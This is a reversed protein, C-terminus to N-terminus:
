SSGDARKVLEHLRDAMGSAVWEDNVHGDVEVVEIGKGGEELGKKLERVLAGDAEEDWFVGGDVDIGSWGKKPVMVMCLDPESPSTRLLTISPNHVHLTRPPSSSTYHSPVTSRPGFNAMDLAGLSIVQPISSKSAATLRTPGASLIGGCQEDALETTTLDLVADFWQVSSANDDTMDRHNMHPHNQVKEEILREMTRGGSGTCHFVVPEYLRQGTEDDKFSRLRDCAATVGPTTLGFMTVAVLHKPSDKMDPSDDQPSASNTSFYAHAMGAMASAANTLILSSLINLTGSIDVISPMLCIDSDGVYASVDGSAMTSVCIKPLGIKVGRMVECVLATTTSGGLGMLGHIGSGEHSSNIYSQVLSQTGKTMFQLAESRPLSRITELSTGAASCVSAPSHTSTPSPEGAQLSVDILIVDCGKSVLIDRVFVHEAEKTDLFGILIVQPRM